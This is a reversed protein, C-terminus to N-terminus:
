SPIFTREFYRCSDRVTEDVPIYEHCFDRRSKKNSYFTTWGSLRGYAYTLMPRRRTLHSALELSLGAASIVASPVRFPHVKRRAYHGILRIVDPYALNAGVLLYKEGAQGGDLAKMIIASVDRVDVVGLGGSFSGFMRGSYVRAYLQNHITELVPDGPGMISAPILIVANLGKNRVAEEVVRQGLYKSTMYYFCPPWNFPIEEDILEGRKRFGVAGVSSVHILRLVHAELCADVVARVGKRNVRMLRDFDRRWYSVLGALHIVHTHEQAAELVREPDAIDGSFVRVNEGRWSAPVRDGPLVFASIADAGYKKLLEPILVSGVFGTAGTVLIRM